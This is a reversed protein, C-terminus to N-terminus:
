DVDSIESFLPKAAPLKNETKKEGLRLAYELKFGQKIAKHYPSFEGQELALRLLEWDGEIPAYSEPLKGTQMMHNTLFLWRFVEGAPGIIKQPTNARSKVQSEYTKWIRHHVAFATGTDLISEPRQLICHIDTDQCDPKVMLMELIQPTPQKSMRSLLCDKSYTLVEGTDRYLDGAAIVRFLRPKNNPVRLSDGGIEAELILTDDLKHYVRGLFKLAEKPVIATKSPKLAMGMNSLTEKLKLLAKECETQTGLVCIDDVYRIYNPFEQMEKDVDQLALEALWPSLPSGTPVGNPLQAFVNVLSTRHTEPLPLEAIKQRVLNQPITGFCDSIDTRLAVFHPNRQLVERIRDQIANPHWSVPKVHQVQEYLWRQNERDEARPVLLKRGKEYLVQYPKPVLVESLKM